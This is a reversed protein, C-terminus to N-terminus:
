GSSAAEAHLLQSSVVHKQLFGTNHEIDVSGSSSCDVDQSQWIFLKYSYIRYWYVFFLLTM